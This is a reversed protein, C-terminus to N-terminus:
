TVLIPIKLVIEDLYGLYHRPKPELNGQISRWRQRRTLVHPGTSNFGM